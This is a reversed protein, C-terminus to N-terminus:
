CDDQTARPEGRLGTGELRAPPLLIILFPAITVSFAQRILHPLPHCNGSRVGGMRKWTQLAEQPCALIEKTGQSGGANRSSKGTRELPGPESVPGHAQGGLPSPKDSLVVGLHACVTELDRRTNVRHLTAM